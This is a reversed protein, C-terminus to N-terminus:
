LNQGLAFAKLNLEVFQPKVSKAIAARWKDAPIDLHKALRALLVINVCKASGAATAASLADVADVDVGKATLEALM